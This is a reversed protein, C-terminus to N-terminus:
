ITVEYWDGAMEAWSVWADTLDQPFATQNEGSLYVFHDYCEYWLIQTGNVLIRVALHYCFTHRDHKAFDNFFSDMLLLLIYECCLSSCAIEKTPDTQSEAINIQRLAVLDTDKSPM